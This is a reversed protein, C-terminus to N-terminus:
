AAADGGELARRFVHLQRRDRLRYLRAPRKGTARASDLEELMEGALVRTRFAKKDISRDLVIEFVNQMEPLTFPEPLLRVPLDTYESKRRIRAVAEAVLRGHDCALKVGKPRGNRRLPHWRVHDAQGGAQRTDDVPVLAAHLLTISWDRPDRERGGHAAVQELWQADIGTRERLVRRACAELSADADVDVFGGPLAWAGPWPEGPADPRRALLVHPRGDIITLAAIDVTVLPRRAPLPPKTSRPMRFEHAQM